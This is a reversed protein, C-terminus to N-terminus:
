APRRGGFIALEFLKFYCDVDTFGIARLWQCQDTVPALINEDRTPRTIYAAAIEERTKPAAGAAHFRHICDIFHDHHLAEVAPTPSSVQDLNVFVGGPRLRDFIERFLAKKRADPQHHIVFGSVVADFPEGGVAAAWAPSAIDARVLTARPDDGLRSRAAELMPESFDAFVVRAGPHRELLSGGVIGDGCGLDLIRGPGPCWARLIADILELQMAAAPIAGRVDRLFAAAVGGEQWKSREEAM